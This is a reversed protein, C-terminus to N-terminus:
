PRPAAWSSWRSQWVAGGRLESLSWCVLSSILARFVYCLYLLLSRVSDGRYSEDPMGHLYYYYYYYLPNRSRGDAVCPKSIIILCTRRAYLTCLSWWQSTWGRFIFILDNWHQKEDVCVMPSILSPSGQVAVEVKVCSRLESPGEKVMVM